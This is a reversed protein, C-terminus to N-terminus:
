QEEPGGRQERVSRRDPLDGVAADTEVTVQYEPHETGERDELAAPVEKRGDDREGRAVGGAERDCQRREGVIALTM